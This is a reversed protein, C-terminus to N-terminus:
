KSGGKKNKKEYMKVFESNSIDKIIDDDDEIVYEYDGNSLNYILRGSKFYLGNEAFILNNRIIIM